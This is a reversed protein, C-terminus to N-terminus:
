YLSITYKYFQKKIHMYTYMYQHNVQATTMPIQIGLKCLTASTLDSKLLESENGTNSNIWLVHRQIHFLHVESQMFTDVVGISTYVKYTRYM